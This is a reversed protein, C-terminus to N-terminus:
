VWDIFHLTYNKYFNFIINVKLSVWIKIDKQNLRVKSMEKDLHSFITFCKKDLINDPIGFVISEISTTKYLEWKAVTKNKYMRMGKIIISIPQNENIKKVIDTEILLGLQSLQNTTLNQKRVFKVFIERYLEDQYQIITYNESETMNETTKLYDEFKPKLEPYKQVVREMSLFYPYCVTIAPLPSYKDIDLTINVVTEGEIYQLILKMSQYVFPFVCLIIFFLKM